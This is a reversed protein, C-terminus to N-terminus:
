PCEERCKSGTLNAGIAKIHAEERVGVNQDNIFPVYVEHHCACCRAVIEDFTFTVEPREITVPRLDVDYSMFDGCRLCFVKDM